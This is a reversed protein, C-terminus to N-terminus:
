PILCLSLFTQTLNLVLKLYTKKLDFHLNLHEGTRISFVDNHYM